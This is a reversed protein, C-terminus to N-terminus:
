DKKFCLRKSQTKFPHSYLGLRKLYFEFIKYGKNLLQKMTKLSIDEIWINKWENSLM